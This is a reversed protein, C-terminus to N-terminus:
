TPVCAFMLFLVEILTLPLCNQKSKTSIRCSINFINFLSDYNTQVKFNFILVIEESTSLKFVYGQDPFKDCDIRYANRSYCFGSKICESHVKEKYYLLNEKMDM